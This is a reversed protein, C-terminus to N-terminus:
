DEKVRGAIGAFEEHELIIIEIDKRPISLFPATGLILIPHDTTMIQEFTQIIKKSKLLMERAEMDNGYSPSNLFRICVNYESALKAMIKFYTENYTLVDLHSTLYEIPLGMKKAWEIQSRLELEVQTMDANKYVDTIQAWLLGKGDVLSSIKEVATM